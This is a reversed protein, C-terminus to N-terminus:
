PLTLRYDGLGYSAGKGLHLHSGLLLFPWFDALDGTLTFSGLLGQSGGGWDAWRCTSSALTLERSRAALLKFDYTLAIAGYYYALSSIRRFLGGMFTPVALERLPHGDRLLRLPTQLTITVSPGGSEAALDAANLLLVRDLSFQGAATLLPQRTGVSDSVAIARLLVQVQRRFAPLCFLQQLAALYLPLHNAAQGVLTLGIEVPEGQRAATAPLSFVFPLPPKQYRRVAEPDPSVTQGFTQRCPCGAGAGCSGAATTCGVARRFAEPFFGKIGFLAAPALDVEPVLTASLKVLTFDM